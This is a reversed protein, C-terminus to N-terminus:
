EENAEHNTRIPQDTGICHRSHIWDQLENQNGIEAMRGNIHTKSVNLLVKHIM